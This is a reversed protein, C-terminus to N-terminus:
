IEIVKEPDEKPPNKRPRGRKRPPAPTPEPAAPPPPTSTSPGSAIPETEGESGALSDLDSLDEPERRPPRTEVPPGPPRDSAPPFVTPRVTPNVSPSAGGFMETPLQFGSLDFSPGSMDSGGKAGGNYPVPNGRTSVPPPPGTRPRPMADPDTPNETEMRQLDGMTKMVSKMLDPNQSLAKGLHASNTLRNSLHFWFASFGVMSLLEIEPSVSVYDAYKDHLREFVDDYKDITEQTHDSFGDLRLKWPNFKENVLEVGYTFTLLASRSMELSKRLSRERKLRRFEFRIEQINSTTDLSRVNMGRSQFSQIRGLLDMKEELISNYGESPRLPDNKADYTSHGGQLNPDEDDDEDLDESDDAYEGEEGGEGDDNEGQTNRPFLIEDEETYMKKPNAFVDMDDVKGVVGEDANNPKPANPKRPIHQIEIDDDDDFDGLEPDMEWRRANKAVRIDSMGKYPKAGIKKSLFIVRLPM